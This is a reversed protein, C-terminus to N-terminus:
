LRCVLHPRSQLESTHEESRQAALERTPTLILARIPRKRLPSENSLLQLIPLAFGATKGSGTQASALVDKQELILPISKEQIVSPSEYGKKSIAKLLAESLGLSKFSM